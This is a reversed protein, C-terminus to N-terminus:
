NNRRPIITKLVDGHTFDKYVYTIKTQLPKTQLTYDKSSFISTIKRNFLAFLEVKSILTSKLTEGHDNLLIVLM